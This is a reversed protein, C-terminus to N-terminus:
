PKRFERGLYDLKGLRVLGKSKVGFVDSHAWCTSLKFNFYEM